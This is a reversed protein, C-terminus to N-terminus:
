KKRLAMIYDILEAIEEKTLEKEFGPMKNKGKATIAIMEEKSMKSTQLAMKGAHVNLKKAQKPFNANTRHCIACKSNFNNKPNALIVVPTTLIAIALLCPIIKMNMSRQILRYSSILRPKRLNLKLM